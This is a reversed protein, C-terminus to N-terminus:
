LITQGLKLLVALLEVMVLIDNFYITYKRDENVELYKSGYVLVKSNDYCHNTTEVIISLKGVESSIENIISDKINDIIDKTEVKAFPNLFIFMFLLFGIFILFSLIIEIHGQARNNMKEKKMMIKNIVM